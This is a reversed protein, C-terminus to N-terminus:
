TGQPDLEHKRKYLENMMAQLIWHRRGYSKFCQEIFNIQECDMEQLANKWWMDVELSQPPSVGFDKSFRVLANLLKKDSTSM